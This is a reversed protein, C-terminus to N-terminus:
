PGPPRQLRHEAKFVMHWTKGGDPSDEFQQLVRGGSLPMITVRTQALGATPDPLPIFRIGPGQYSPDSNRGKISSPAPVQNSVYFQKWQGMRVDFASLSMGKDGVPGIWEATIACADLVAHVRQTAYRTGVSDYVDWDGVWFALRQFNSDTSCKSAATARPAEATIHHSAACAVSAGVAIAGLWRFSMNM